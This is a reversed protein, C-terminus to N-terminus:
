AQKPRRDGTRRSPAPSATLTRVLDARLGVLTPEALHRRPSVFYDYGGLELGLNRFAERTLRRFRNRRVAGGYARPTSIGLRPHGLDNPVRRVLAQRGPFVTGRALM